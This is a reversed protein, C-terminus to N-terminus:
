WNLKALAEKSANIVTDSYGQYLIVYLLNDFASKEGLKGISRIVALLLVEDYTGNKETMDNLIGLYGSLAQGTEGTALLTLCDIVELLEDRSIRSENYQTQTIAFYKTILLSSRSWLTRKIVRMSDLQLDIIERHLLAADESHNITSSLISEAIEAKFFDDLDTNKEVLDFIMRKQQTDDGSIIKIADTKYNFISNSIITKILATANSDLELFLSPFLNKFLNVDKVAELVTLSAIILENSREATEKQTEEEVILYIDQVIKADTIPIRSFIPFIQIYVDSSPFNKYVSVLLPIIESPIEKTFGSLTALLLSKIEMSDPLVLKSDLCFQLSIQLLDFDATDMKAIGSVLNIKDAVSGLIFKQKNESYQAQASVAIFFLVFFLSSIKKM